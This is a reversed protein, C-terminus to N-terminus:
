PCNKVAKNILAFYNKKSVKEFHETFHRCSNCYQSGCVPPNPCYMDFDYLTEKKRGTFKDFQQETDINGIRLKKGCRPCYKPFKKM